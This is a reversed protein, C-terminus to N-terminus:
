MPHGSIGESQSQLLSLHRHVFSYGKLMGFCKFNTCSINTVGCRQSILNELTVFSLAHVVVCPFMQFSAKFIEWFKQSGVKTQAHLVLRGPHAKKHCQQCTPWSIEIHEKTRSQRSNLLRGCTFQGSVGQNTRHLAGTVCHQFSQKLQDPGPM